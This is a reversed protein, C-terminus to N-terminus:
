IRRDFYGECFTEGVKKINVMAGIAYATEIDVAGFYEENSNVYEIMKVKDHRCRLMGMIMQLDTKFTTIDKINIPEVVNIKYNTVYKMLLSLNKNSYYVMNTIVFMALNKCRGCLSISGQMRGQGTM